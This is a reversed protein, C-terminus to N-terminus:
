SRTIEKLRTKIEARKESLAPNKDTLRLYREYFPKAKSANNMYKDLFVALNLVVLHNEQDAKYAKIFFDLARKKANTGAFILGLQNWPAPDNKFRPNRLALAYYSSAGSMKLKNMSEALLIVTNMDSPKLEYAKKLFPLAQEYKKQAVFLRGLTHNAIFSDPSNKVAKELCGVAFERKNDADMALGEIILASINEPERELVCSAMDEANEWKGELSLKLSQDLLQSTSLSKYKKGCSM